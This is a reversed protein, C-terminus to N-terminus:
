NGIIELLEIQSAGLPLGIQGGRAITGIGGMLHLETKSREFRALLTWQERTLAM